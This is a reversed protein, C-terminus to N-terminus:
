GGPRRRARIREVAEGVPATKGEEIERTGLALIKLLALQEQAQHHLLAVFVNEFRPQVDMHRKRDRQQDERHHM